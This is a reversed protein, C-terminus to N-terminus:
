AEELMLKLTSLNTEMQKELQRGALGEALKFFGGIEAQATFSLLTGDGQAEFTQTFEAPVPGSVVKSSVRNPPDWETIEVETDIKRGLLRASTRRTSGVGPPDDSTWESSNVGSQWEASKAPDTLYDFVEQQPRNILISKEIKYM